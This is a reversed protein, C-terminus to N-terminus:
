KEASDDGSGEIGDRATAAKNRKRDHQEGAHRWNGCVGRIGDRKPGPERGARNRIQLMEARRQAQEYGQERRAYDTAPDTSQQQDFSGLVGKQM